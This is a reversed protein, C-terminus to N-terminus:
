NQEPRAATAGDSAVTTMVVSPAVLSSADVKGVARVVGMNQQQVVQRIVADQGGRVGVLRVGPPPTIIRAYMPANKVGGQPIGKMSATQLIQGTSTVLSSGPQGSPQALLITTQGPKGGAQTMVTRLMQLQRGAAAPWGPQSTM